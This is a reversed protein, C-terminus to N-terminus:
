RSRRDDDPRYSHVAQDRSQRGGLHIECSAGQPIRQVPLTRLFQQRDRLRAGREQDAHARQCVEVPVGAHARFRSASLGDNVLKDLNFLAARLAFKATPPEVPRIWIQFIQQNRAVNQPPEMLFMGMPFHEIYAYDGYNLGRKERLEDYLIGGSMRHQGLYSAALLMAPYDQLKRTTLIPFGFSIAVSRTDKEVIVARNGEVPEVPKPRPHFGAGEPLAKFDKKMTDLFSAPFGGAIGLFLNSQSYQQRYFQKM